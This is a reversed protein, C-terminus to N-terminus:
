DELIAVAVSTINDKGGRDNALDIMRGCIANFDGAFIESIEDRELYGHLGDSCLLFKDDVRVSLIQTDVDVYDKSGVARTIINKYPAHEAQERTIVGERIQWNVLTHDETLQLTEGDRVCYIRSDGVQATIAFAGAILMASVTTGMGQHAPSQEAMGYVMYTASQVSSELLRCISHSSEQSIPKNAFDEIQGRNRVIMDHVADVTEQSAIEGGAHGGMGDAVIFFGLEEDILFADQNVKRRMGVHTKGCARLRM